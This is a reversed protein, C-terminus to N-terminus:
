DVDRHAQEPVVEDEDDLGSRVAQIRRQADAMLSELRRRDGPRLRERAADTGQFTVVLREAVFQRPGHIESASLRAEVVDLFQDLDFLDELDLRRKDLMPALWDVVQDRDLLPDGDKPGLRHIADVITELQWRRSASRSWGLQEARRLAALSVQGWEDAEAASEASGVRLVALLHAAYGNVKGGAEVLLGDLSGAQLARRVAEPGAAYAEAIPRVWSARSFRLEAM